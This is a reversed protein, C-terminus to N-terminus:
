EKVESEEAETEYREISNHFYIALCSTVLILALLFLSSLLISAKGAGVRIATTATVGSEAGPAFLGALFSVMGDMGPPFEGGFVAVLYILVFVIGFAGVISYFFPRVSLGYESTEILKGGLLTIFVALSILVATLWYFLCARFPSNVAWYSASLIGTGSGYLWYTQRVISYFIYGGLILGAFQVSTLFGRM